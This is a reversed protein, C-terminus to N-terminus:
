PLLTYGAADYAAAAATDAADLMTVGDTAEATVNTSVTIDIPTHGVWARYGWRVPWLEPTLDDPKQVEVWQVTPDETLAIAPM